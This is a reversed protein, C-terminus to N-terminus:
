ACLFVVAHVAAGSSRLIAERRRFKEGNGAQNHAGTKADM